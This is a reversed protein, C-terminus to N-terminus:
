RINGIIQKNTDHKMTMIQSILKIMETLKQMKMQLQMLKKQYDPANPDLNAIEKEISAMGDYAKGAADLLAGDGGGGAQGPGGVNITIQVGPLQIVTPQPPQQPKGTIKELLKGIQDMMGQLGKGIQGAQQGIQGLMGAGKQFINQLGGQILNGLQGLMGGFPGPLPLQGPKAIQGLINGAIAGLPGGLLGGLPGLFPGAIKGFTDALGGLAKGITGVGGAIQGVGQAIGGVTQTVAKAVSSLAKGIGGLFLIM